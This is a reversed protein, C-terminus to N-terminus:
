DCPVQADRHCEVFQLVMNAAQGMVNSATNAVQVAGAVVPAAAVGITSLYRDVETRLSGGNQGGSIKYAGSGTDKDQLIYGNGIWGAHSISGESTIVRYGAAVANQIERKM